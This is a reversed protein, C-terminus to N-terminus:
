RLLLLSVWCRAALLVRLQGQLWEWLLGLLRLSAAPLCSVAPARHASLHPRLWPWPLRYM